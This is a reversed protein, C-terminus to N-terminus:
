RSIFTRDGSIRHVMIVAGLHRDAVVVHMGDAALAIDTPSALFPGRGLTRGTVPDQGSVLTRDGTTRNVRLVAPRDEDVVVVHDQDELAIGEPSLFCLGQGTNSDSVLTRLGNMALNIRLVARLVSDVVLVQTNNEIVIGAPALLSPGDGIVPGVCTLTIPSVATCGSIITRDGTSPDIRFVARLAVDAVILLRGSVDVALSTANAFNPGLGRSEKTQSDIGSVLRRQGTVPDVQVVGSVRGPSVVLFQGAPPNVVIGQPVFGPGSSVITRDGTSPTVRSVTSRDAVVLADDAEVAIGQPSTFHPGNGIRLGQSRIGQSIIRRNGSSPEVLVVADLLGDLVVPRRNSDVALRQPAMLDPGTGRQAGTDFNTGSVLDRNGTTLDLRIVGGLIGRNSAVLLHNDDELTLDIPVGLSPGNGSPVASRNGTTPDVNVVRGAGGDAVLWAGNFRVAIGTPLLFPTGGGVLQGLCRFPVADAPTCGSITTRDGTVPDIQIVAEAQSDIVVLSQDAEIAIFTAAALEVGSGRSEGPGCSLASTVVGSVLHRNGSNPDVQVVASNAAIFLQGDAGVAAGVPTFPPTFAPGNGVGRGSVLTRAGTNPDVRLVAALRADAVVLAGSAEVAIGTPAIFGIITVFDEAQGLASIRTVITADRTGVQLAFRATGDSLTTAQALVDQSSLFRADGQIIRATVTEGPLPNAFRDELRVVLPERLEEGPPAVQNNGSVRILRPSSRDPTGLVTFSVPREMGDVWAELQNVGATTGVRLTTGAQCTTEAHVTTETTVVTPSVTGNGATVRFRIPIGAVANGQTDRAELVLPLATGVMATPPLESTLVLQSPAGGLVLAIHEIAQGSSVAVNRCVPASLNGADVVLRHVGPPLNGFRFRGASDAIARFPTGPVLIDTGATQDGEAQQIVVMGTVQGGQALLRAPGGVTALWVTGHTDVVVDRVVSQGHHVPLGDLASFNTSAVQGSGDDQLRSVGEDTAAWVDGQQGAALAFIINSGLGGLTLVPRNASGPELTRIVYLTDQWRGSRAELRRLGGGLTGAWLRGQPDEVASFIIDPKILPAGFMDLFSVGNVGVTTLPRVAFIAQAIARFFEELSAVDGRFSLTNDFPIPIFQGDQFRTLGFATGFWSPGGPGAILAPVTNSLLGGDERRFPPNYTVMVNACQGERFTDAVRGVGGDSGFLWVAGQDAAAVRTSPSAELVGTRANRVKFPYNSDPMGTTDFVNVTQCFVQPYRPDLVIDGNAVVRNDGGPRVAIFLFHVRGLGDVVIDEIRARAEAPLNDNSPQVTRVDGTTAVQVITGVKQPCTEGEPCAEGGFWVTGDPGLAVAFFDTTGTKGLRQIVGEGPLRLRYVHQFTLPEGTASRLRVQVSAPLAPGPSLFRGRFATGGEIPEPIVQTGPVEVGSLTFPERVVVEVRTLAEPQIQGRMIVQAVPGERQVAKIRFTVVGDATQQSLQFTTRFLRTQQTLTTPEAVSETELFEVQSGDGAVQIAALDLATISQTRFATSIESLFQQVDVFTPTGDQRQIPAHRLAGSAVPTDEVIEQLRDIDKQLMAIKYLDLMQMITQRQVQPSPTSPQSPASGSGSSCSLLFLPFALLVSLTYYALQWPECRGEGRPLFPAPSDHGRRLSPRM